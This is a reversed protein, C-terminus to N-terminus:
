DSIESTEMCMLVADETNHYYKKRLGCRVFGFKEYLALAASNSAKVELNVAKIGHEACVKM